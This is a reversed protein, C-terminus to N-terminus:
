PSPLPPPPASQSPTPTIVPSTHLAFESLKWGHEQDKVWFEYNRDQSDSVLLIRKGEDLIRTATTDAGGIQISVLEVQQLFAQVWEAKWGILGALRNEVVAMKAGTSRWFEVLVVLMQREHWFQHLYLGATAHELRATHIIAGLAGEIYTNRRELSTEIKVAASAAHFEALLAQAHLTIAQASTERQMGQQVQEAYQITQDLHLIQLEPNHTSKAAFRYLCSAISICRNAAAFQTELAVKSRLKTLDQHYTEMDAFDERTFSMKFLEVLFKYQATPNGRQVANHYAETLRNKNFLDGKEHLLYDANYSLVINAPTDMASTLAPQHKRQMEQLGAALIALKEPSDFPFADEFTSGLMLRGLLQGNTGPTMLVNKMEGDLFRINELIVKRAIDFIPDTQPIHEQCAFIRIALSRKSFNFSKVTEPEVDESPLELLLLERVHGLVGPSWDDEVITKRCQLDFSSVETAASIQIGDALQEKLRLSRNINELERHRLALVNLIIDRAKAVVLMAFVMAERATESAQETLTKWEGSPLLLEFRAIVRELIHDWVQLQTTQLKDFLKADLLFYTAVVRFPVTHAKASLRISEQINYHENARMDALTFAPNTESSDRCADETRADYYEQFSKQLLGYDIEKLTGETQAIEQRLLYPLIPHLKVYAPSGTSKSQRLELLGTKLLETQVAEWASKQRAIFGREKALVLRSKLDGSSQSEAQDFLYGTSFLSYLWPWIAADIRQQFPALSLLLLYKLQGDEEKYRSLISALTPLVGPRPRHDKKALSTIDNMRIDDKFAGFLEGPRLNSKSLQNLFLKLFLLNNNHLRFIHELEEADHDELSHDKQGLRLIERAIEGAEEDNPIAKSCLPLGPYEAELATHPLCSFAVFRRRQPKLRHIDLLFTRLRMKKEENDPSADHLCELNDILYVCDFGEELTNAEESDPPNTIAEQKSEMRTKEMDRLMDDVLYVDEEVTLGEGFNVCKIQRAYGTEKWWRALYCGLTTKGTEPEGFFIVIPTWALATELALLDFDQSASPKILAASESTPTRRSVGIGQCEEWTPLETASCLRPATLTSAYYVPVCDDECDVTKLFRAARRKDNRLAERGEAVSLSADKGSFFAEYFAKMFLAAADAKAQYSMAVTAAVGESSFVGALNSEFGEDGKGSNCSNLVAIQVERKRLMQAIHSASKRVPKYGSGYKHEFLLKASKTKKDVVGHTDFHVINFYGPEKSELVKKLNEWTGPRSFCVKIRPFGKNAACALNWIYQSIGRYRVDAEGWPRASVVLIKLSKLPSVPPPLHSSSYVEDGVIRSVKLISCKRGFANGRELIEWPLGNLRHEEKSSLILLHLKLGPTDNEEMWPFIKVLPPRLAAEFYEEYADLRQKAKIARSTAFPDLRAYDEFYWRIEEIDEANSLDGLEFDQSGKRPIDGTLGLTWTQSEDDYGHSMCTLLLAM